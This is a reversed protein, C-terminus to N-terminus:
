GGGLSHGYGGNGEIACNLLKRELKGGSTERLSFVHGRASSRVTELRRCQGSTM